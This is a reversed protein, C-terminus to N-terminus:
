LMFFSCPGRGEDPPHCSGAERGTDAALGVKSLEVLIALIPSLFAENLAKSEVLIPAVAKVERETVMVRGLRCKFGYLLITLSRDVTAPWGSALRALWDVLWDPRGAFLM